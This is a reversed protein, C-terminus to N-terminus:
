KIRWKRKVSRNVTWMIHRQGRKLILRYEDAKSPKILLTNRKDFAVENDRPSSEEEGEIVSGTFLPLILKNVVKYFEQKEM